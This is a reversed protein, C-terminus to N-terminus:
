ENQRAVYEMISNEQERAGIGIITCCRM